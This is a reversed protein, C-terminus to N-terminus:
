TGEIESKRTHESVDGMNWGHAGREVIENFAIPKQWWEKRIQEGRFEWVGSRVKEDGTGNQDVGMAKKREDGGKDWMRM